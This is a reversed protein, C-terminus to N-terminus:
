FLNYKFYVSVNFEISSFIYLFNVITLELLILTFVKTISNHKPTFLSKQFILNSYINRKVVFHYLSYIGQGNGNETVNNNNDSFNKIEDSINIKVNEDSYDKKKAINTKSNDPVSNANDNPENINLVRNNVNNINEVVLNNNKNSKSIRRYTELYYYMCYRDQINGFIKNDSTINNFEMNVLTNENHSDESNSAVCYYIIFIVIFFYNLSIITTLIKFLTNSALNTKNFLENRYLYFHIGTYESPPEYDSLVTFEGSRRSSAIFYNNQDMTKIFNDNTNSFVNSFIAAETNIDVLYLSYQM